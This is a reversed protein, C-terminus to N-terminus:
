LEIELGDYALDIRLPYSSAYIQLYRRTEDLFTDLRDDSATPEQHFLCLRKVKSKVSLEVAIINNSHGWNAKMDLADLLAYQADFILLDADRFYNLFPYDDKEVDDTHESDTSYVIKRGGKLFLYGYSAGPHNQKWGKVTYGGIEYEKEAELIHFRINAKMYSLPVPFCPSNQQEVFVRELEEHLGYINVEFGPIYAPTFFPFGQIHDWHLHSMFIHFVASMGPRAGQVVSVGLDRLGTGADCVIYQESGRIEVCATNTGYTARVAFPLERDMYSSVEEDSSFVRGQARLLAAQVKGRIVQAGLSASLSGRTGWFRVGM